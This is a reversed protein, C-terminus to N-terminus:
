DTVSSAGSTPRSFLADAQVIAGGMGSRPADVLCQLEFGHGEILKQVGSFEMEGEYLPQFSLEALIWATKDLTRKAGAIVAAELGQVDIKLLIPDTADLDALMSDLSTMPVVITEAEHAHPYANRHRSGLPLVSSSLSYTNVHFSTPGVRDGVATEHIRLRTLGHAAKKLQQSAQPLPEFAHIIATPFFYHAAVAFQGVNAGIDLVTRPTVGVDALTRCIQYSTFSFRPWRLLAILARPDDAFLAAKRVAAGIRM